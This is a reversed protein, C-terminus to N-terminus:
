SKASTLGSASSKKVGLRRRGMELREEALRLAEEARGAAVAERILDIVAREETPATPM